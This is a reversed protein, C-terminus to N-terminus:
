SEVFEAKLEFLKQVVNGERQIDLTDPGKLMMGGDVAVAQGTMWLSADSAMFLAMQAIDEPSGAQPLLQARSFIDSIRSLLTTTQEPALGLMGGVSGTPIIGPCIANVRIRNAALEAAAIETLRILGAKAVSYAASSIGPRLGAISATNIISGGGRARLMPTAHKIGLMAGRLNLAMVADWDDIAMDAISSQTGGAGANNFLIDLGGFVDQALALAAAVDAEKTVDCRIFRTQDRDEGADGANLDAVVVRAGERVFLAVAAAGLGSGGGTIVAVRGDLSAM